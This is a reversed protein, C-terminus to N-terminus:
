TVKGLSFIEWLTVGYSWTDSKTSFQKLELSEPALWKWPLPEAGAKAYTPQEELFRRSLGFDTVKAVYGATLLVNRAALDSHIVSQSSVFEMASAIEFAWRVLQYEKM